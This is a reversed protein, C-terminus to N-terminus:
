QALDGLLKRLAPMVMQILRRHDIVVDATCPSGVSLRQAPGASASWRYGTVTVPDADLNARVEFPAGGASLEQVLTRNKLTRQMGEQTAPLTAVWTARGFIFGYEERKVTSPVIHVEMGPRVRKGETPALFLSAILPIPRDAAARGAEEDPVLSVLAGGRDILEGEDVKIEAVVGAYQSTVVSLRAIRDQLMDVKRRATESLLQRNLQERESEAKTHHDDAALRQEATLNRELEQRAEELQARATFVREKTTFGKAQLKEEGDLLTALAAMRERNAAVVRELEERQARILQDNDGLARSQLARIRQSDSETEALEAKAEALEQLLDPQTLRAIVQGVAVHEGPGIVMEAVRGAGESIVDKVGGPLILIGQAQVTVPVSIMFSAAVMAAILFLATGLLIYHAPRVIVVGLDLQDPSALQDVAAAQFISRGGAPAVADLPALSVAPAQPRRLRLAMARLDPAKM